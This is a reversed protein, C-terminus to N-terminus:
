PFNSHAKTYESNDSPQNLLCYKPDIQREVRTRNAHIHLSAMDRGVLLRKLM